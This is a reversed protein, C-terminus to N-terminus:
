PHRERVAVEAQEILLLTRTDDRNTAAARLSALVEEPPQPAFAPHNLAIHQPLYDPSYSGKACHPCRILRPSTPTRM